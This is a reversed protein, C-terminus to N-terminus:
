FRGDIGIAINLNDTSIMTLSDFPISYLIATYFGVGGYSLVSKRIYSSLALGFFISPKSFYSEGSLKDSNINIESGLVFEFNDRFLFKSYELSIPISTINPSESSYLLETGFLLSWNYNGYIDSDVYGIKSGFGYRDIFLVFRGGSNNPYDKTEIAFSNSIIKEEPVIYLIRGQAESNLVKEIRLFGTTYGNAINQFVYGPKMGINKGSGVQVLLDKVDSIETTLPFLTQFFQQVAKSIVVYSSLVAETNSRVRETGFRDLPEKLVVDFQNKFLRSGLLIGKETDFVKALFSYFTSISMVNYTKYDYFSSELAYENEEWPGKCYKVYNGKEVDFVYRKSTSDYRYYEGVEIRIPVYLGNVFRKIYAGNVPNEFFYYKESSTEESKELFKEFTLIYRPPRFKLVVNEGGFLDATRLYNMLENLYIRDYINYRTDEQLYALLFTRLIPNFGNEFLVAVDIKDESHENIIQSYRKGANIITEEVTSGQSVIPTISRIFFTSLDIDTIVLVLYYTTETVTYSKLTYFDSMIYKDEKKRAWAYEQLYVYLGDKDVVYKKEKPNYSYRRKDSIQYYDGGYYVYLGNKNKIFENVKRTVSEKSLSIVHVVRASGSKVDSFVKTLSINIDFNEYIPKVQRDFIVKVNISQAYSVANFVMLILILFVPTMKVYTSHRVM